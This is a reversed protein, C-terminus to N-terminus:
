TSVATSLFIVGGRDGTELDGTLLVGMPTVGMALRSASILSVVPLPRRRELLIAAFLDRISDTLRFRLSVRTSAAGAKCSFYVGGDKTGYLPFM